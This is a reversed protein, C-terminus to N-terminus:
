TRRVTGDPLDWLLIEGTQEGGGACTILTKGDRTVCCAWGRLGGSQVTAAGGNLLLPEDDGAAAPAAATKVPTQTLAP